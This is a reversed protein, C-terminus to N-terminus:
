FGIVIVWTIFSFIVVLPANSLVVVTATPLDARVVRDGLYGATAPVPATVTVAAAVVAVVATVVANHVNASLSPLRIVLRVVVLPM